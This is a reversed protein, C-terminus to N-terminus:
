VDTLTYKKWATMQQTDWNYMCCARVSGDYKMFEYVTLNDRETGSQLPKLVYLIGEANGFGMVVNMFPSYAYYAGTETPIPSTQVLNGKYPVGGLM